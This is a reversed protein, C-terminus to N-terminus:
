LYLLVRNPVNSRNSRKSRRRWGSCESMLNVSFLIALTSSSTWSQKVIILQCQSVLRNGEHPRRSCGCKQIFRAWSSVKITDKKKKDSINLKEEWLLLHKQVWFICVKQQILVQRASSHISFNTKWFNWKKM